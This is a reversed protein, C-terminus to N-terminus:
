VDIQREEERNKLQTLIHNKYVYTFNYTVIGFTDDADIDVFGQEKNFKTTGGGRGDTRRGRISLM